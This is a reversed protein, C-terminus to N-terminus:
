GGQRILYRLDGTMDDIKSGHPFLLRWNGAADIVYVFASHDVTYGLASNPMERKIATVGYDAMVQDIEARTGTLGIFSPDFMQMYRGIRDATDREPDVSVFLVQLKDADSGLRERVSHMDALATPCVDPCNTFGFFITLVKGRQQSLTFPQGNHDTLTFDKAQNPPELVTGRFTHTGCSSLVLASVLLLLWARLAQRTFAFM